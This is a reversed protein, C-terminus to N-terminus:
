ATKAETPKQQKEMVQKSLPAIIRQFVWTIMMMLVPIAPIFWIWPSMPIIELVRSIIASVSTIVTSLVLQKTTEITKKREEPSEPKRFMLARGWVVNETKESKVLSPFYKKFPAVARLLVLTILAWLFREPTMFSFLLELTTLFLTSGAVDISFEKHRKQMKETEEPTKPKAGPLWARGFVNKEFKKSIFTKEKRRGL